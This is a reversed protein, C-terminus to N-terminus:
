VRCRRGCRLRPGSRCGRALHAELAPTDSTPAGPPLLRPWGWASHPITTAGGARWRLRNAALAARHRGPHATPRSPDPGQAPELSTDGAAGTWRAPWAALPPGALLTPPV